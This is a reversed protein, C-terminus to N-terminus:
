GRIPQSFGAATAESVPNPTWDRKCEDFTYSRAPTSFPDVRYYVNPEEIRGRFRADDPKDITMRLVSARREPQEAMMELAPDPAPTSFVCFGASVLWRANEDAEAVAGKEMLFTCSRLSLESSHESGEPDARLAFAAPHPAFACEQVDVNIRGSRQVAIGRRLGFYTNKVSVLNATERNSHIVSLGVVDTTQLDRDADFRCEWLELKGVDSVM